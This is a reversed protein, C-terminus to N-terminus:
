RQGRQLFCNLWSSTAERTARVAEAPRNSRQQSTHPVSIMCFLLIDPACCPSCAFSATFALICDNLSCVCPIRCVNCNTSFIRYSFYTAGTLNYRLKSVPIRSERLISGSAHSTRWIGSVTTKSSSSSPFGILPESLGFSTAIAIGPPVPITTTSSSSAFAFRSSSCLRIASLCIYTGSSNSGEVGGRTSLM